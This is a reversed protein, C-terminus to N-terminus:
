CRLYRLQGPGRLCPTVQYTMWGFLPAFKEANVFNGFNAALHDMYNRLGCAERLTHETEESFSFLRKAVSLRCLNSIGYASDIMSWAYLFADRNTSYSTSFEGSESTNKDLLIELESYARFYGYGTYIIAEIFLREDEALNVPIM